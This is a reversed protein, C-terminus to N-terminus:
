SWLWGKQEECLVSCDLINNKENLRRAPCTEVPEVVTDRCPKSLSLWWSSLWWRRIAQILGDAALHLLSLVPLSSGSRILCGPLPKDQSWLSHRLSSCRSQHLDLQFFLYGPFYPRIKRARPNKPHVRNELTKSSSISCLSSAWCGGRSLRNRTGWMSITHFTPRTPIINPM